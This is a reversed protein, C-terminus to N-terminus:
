KISYGNEIIQKTSKAKEFLEGYVMLLYGNVSRLFHLKNILRQITQKDKKLLRPYGEPMKFGFLGTAMKNFERADFVEEVLKIYELLIQEERLIVVQIWRVQQDYDMIANSVEQKRILRLNAGNKLQQITRDNNFFHLAVTLPRANFYIKKGYLDPDPTDLLVTLSDIMKKRNERGKLLSDLRGIDAKLDEHYSRIFQKERRHEIYHERQNEVFFGLTVALFLMLFEWFYHTWKKRPTHTHTHVEM